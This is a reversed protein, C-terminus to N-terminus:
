GQRRGKESWRVGDKNWSDEEKPEEFTVVLQSRVRAARVAESEELVEEGVDVVELVM